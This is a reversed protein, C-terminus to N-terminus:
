DHQSESHTNDGAHKNCIARRLKCECDVFLDNCEACTLDTWEFDGFIEKCIECRICSM